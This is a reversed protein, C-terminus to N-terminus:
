SILLGHSLMLPDAKYIGREICREWQSSEGRGYGIRNQTVHLITGRRVWNNQNM